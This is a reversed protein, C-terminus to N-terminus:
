IPYKVFDFHHPLAVHLPPVAAFQEFEKCPLSHTKKLGGSPYLNPM